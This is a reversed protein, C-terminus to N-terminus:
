FKSLCIIKGADHFFRLALDQQDPDYIGSQNAINKVDQITLIPTLKKVISVIKLCEEFKLWKIPYVEDLFSLRKSVKTITEQVRRTGSSELYSDGKAIDISNEVPIFFATESSSGLSYIYDVYPSDRQLLLEEKIFNDIKKLSQEQHQLSERHTGILVVRHSYIKQEEPSQFIRVKISQIWYCIDDLPSIASKANKPNHIFHLMDPLKFVVLYLARKLIFCHHMPRYGDQGAFDLTNLILSPETVEEQQLLIKNIMTCQQATLIKNTVVESRLNQTVSISSETAEMDGHSSHSIELSTAQSGENALDSVQRDSHDSPDVLRDRSAQIHETSKELGFEEIAQQLEALINAESSAIDSKEFLRDKFDRLLVRPFREDIDSDKQEQWHADGGIHIHRRDVTNVENNDIGRTSDMEKLYPMGVLQRYLSTKGVEQRGLILLSCYPIKRKGEHLAQLYIEVAQHGMKEIEPPIM